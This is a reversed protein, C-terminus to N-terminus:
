DQGAHIMEVKQDQEQAWEKRSRSLNEDSLISRDRRRECEAVGRSIGTQKVAREITMRVFNDALGGRHGIVKGM